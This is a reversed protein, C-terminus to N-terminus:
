ERSGYATMTLGSSYQDQLLRINKAKAVGTLQVRIVEIGWKWGNKRCATTLADVVKGHKIEEYTSESLETGIVGMCCDAIADKLASVDLLSKKIDNIRWTVVAEFGITAGDKTDTSMAHIRSTRPVIYEHVPREIKLPILWNLGNKLDRNYVGLRLVIGGEYPDIITWFKFLDTFQSIFEFLKEFV